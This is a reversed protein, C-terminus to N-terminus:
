KIDFTSDPLSALNLHFLVSLGVHFSLHMGQIVLFTLNFQWKNQKIHPMCEVRYNKRMKSPRIIIKQHHRLQIKLITLLKNLMKFFYSYLNM